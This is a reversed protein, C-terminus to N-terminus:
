RNLYAEALWFVRLTVHNFCAGRTGLLASKASSSLFWAIARAAACGNITGKPSFDRAVNERSSEDGHNGSKDKIRSGKGVRERLHAGHHSDGQQNDRGRQQHIVRERPQVQRRRLPEFRLRLILFKRSLSIGAKAIERQKRENPNKAGVGKRSRRQSLDRDVHRIRAPPEPDRGFIIPNVPQQIQCEDGDSVGNELVVGIAPGRSFGEGAQVGPFM